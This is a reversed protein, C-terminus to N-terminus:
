NTTSLRTAYCSKPTSVSRSIWSLVSFDIRGGRSMIFIRGKASVWREIGDQLGITRYEMQFPGKIEGVLIDEITKRVEGRDNPHVGKFFTVPTIYANPPLGFHHKTRADWIIEDTEINHDFLGIEAAETALVLKETSKRLEDAAEDRQLMAMVKETTEHCACFLGSVKGNEDRIPSFSFTFYTQEAYSNRHLTFPLDDAWFSQGALASDVMPKLVPWIDAWLEAFPKGLAQAPDAGKAGLIPLYADNFLFTLSPGWALFMPHGCNLMMSLAGCLPQPWKEIPGIPKTSWDIKHLLAGMKGGGILFRMAIRPLAKEKKPPIIYQM